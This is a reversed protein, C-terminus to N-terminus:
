AAGGIIRLEEMARKHGMEQWLIDSNVRAEKAKVNRYVVDELNKVIPVHVRVSRTQGRRYCRRMAQYFREFSDDFGSFIMSSCNQFNLGYGLIEPKTLLIRIDGGKFGAIAETRREMSDKGSISAVGEVDALLEGIIAAEEDFKTWVIVQRGEGLDKRALEAVLPPKLSDIRRPKRAKGELVFGAALERFRIRTPLSMTGDVFLKRAGKSDLCEELAARTQEPTMAVDYELIEPPPLDKLDDRFGFVAPHRMYVSWTSMFRHFAIKAHEKVHWDGFKDKMFYTFIVDGESRIKELWSAQSAYEMADNPAPTATASLKYEIGKCSKILSWKIKGGSAKLISSEDLAVGALWHMESMMEVGDRPIFKEPNTLGIGSGGARCWAKLDERSRIVDMAYDKGYFTEAEDLFQAIVNLPTIILVRGGTLHKVQRAFELEILTKGLGTDFWVALRKTELARRVAFAQRDLLFDPFPLWEKPPMPPTEDFLAAYRAPAQINYSRDAWEYSMECEPLKKSTIFRAYSAGDFPSAFRINMVDGSFTIM